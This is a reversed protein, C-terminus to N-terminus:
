GQGGSVRVNPEEDLLGVRYLQRFAAAIRTLLAGSAVPVVVHDPSRWGLQEATEFAITKSGEAYYPRLNVNVLAWDYEEAIESCLRNVADYTGDVEVLTTGYVASATLKGSELGAPVLMVARFGAAAAHAAVADALNG